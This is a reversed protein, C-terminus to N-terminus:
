KRQWNTAISTINRETLTLSFIHVMSSSLKSQNESVKLRDLRSVQPFDTVIFNANSHFKNNQKKVPYTNSNNEFSFGVFGM